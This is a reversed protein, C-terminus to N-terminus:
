YRWLLPTERLFDLDCLTGHVNRIDDFGQLLMLTRELALGWAMVDAKIGYPELMEERFMGSNGIELWRKGMLGYIEFSPETYPNFTPKFKIKEIGLRRYFEKFTGMLDRISLGYDMVWGEIQYFELLHTRDLTDKRFVKDVAFFRNPPKTHTALYRATLSTTHGRLVLQKAISESWKYQWGTSGTSGGHEHSAKVRKVLDNPLAKIYKPNKLYFQGWQTRAPHDQPMFLCDNVFFEADVMPGEMEKFGMELLVRKVTEIASRLLHKKGIYEQPAPLSVDYKRIPINKWAGSKIIAPSLQTIEKMSKIRELLAEREEKIEEVIGRKILIDLIKSDSCGAIDELAKEVDTKGKLANKGSETLSLLGQELKIWGNKKAWAIAIEKKDLSIEQIRQPLLQLLRKEPLGQKLYERGEETLRYM